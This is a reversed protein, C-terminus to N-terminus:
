WALCRTHFLSIGMFCQYCLSLIASIESVDGLYCATFVKIASIGDLFLCFVDVFQDELFTAYTSSIYIGLSPFFNLSTRV